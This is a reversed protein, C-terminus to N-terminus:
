ISTPSTCRPATCRRPRLWQQLGRSLKAELRPDEQAHDVVLSFSLSRPALALRALSAPLSQRIHTASPCAGRPRSSPAPALPLGATTIRVGLRMLQRETPGLHVPTRRCPEAAVTARELAPKQGAHAHKARETTDVQTQCRFHPTFLTAIVNSARPLWYLLPPTSLFHFHQQRSFFLPDRGGKM